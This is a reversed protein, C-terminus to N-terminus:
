SHVKTGLPAYERSLLMLVDYELEAVRRGSAAMVISSFSGDLHSAAQDALGLGWWATRLVKWWRFRDTDITGGGARYGDFLAERKAFGGVELHDNRFRWSRVCIWALDEMPDGLHAIEWDYAAELGHESVAINGNRWDGHVLSLGSAPPKPLHRELWVLALTMAPSPQLLAANKEQLDRLAHLCPDGEAPAEVGPDVEAEPVAHLRSMAEGCQYAVREGLGPHQECLRLIRRPISEGTVRRTIFLPGGVYKPEESVLVLRPAPVSAAEATRLLSAEVSMTSHAIEPTPMITAVLAERRDGAIADFLLNTRRAGASAIETAEVRTETGWAEGLLAGLGRALETM